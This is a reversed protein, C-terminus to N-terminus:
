STPDIQLTSDIAGDTARCESSAAILSFMNRRTQRAESLRYVAEVFSLPAM